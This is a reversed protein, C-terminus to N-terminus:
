NNRRPWVQFLAFSFFIFEPNKVRLRDTEIRNIVRNEAPNKGASACVVLTLAFKSKSQYNWLPSMAM